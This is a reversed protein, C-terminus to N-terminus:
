SSTQPYKAEVTSALRSVAASWPTTCNDVKGCGRSDVTAPDNVLSNRCIMWLCMCLGTGHSAGPSAHYSCARVSARPRRNAIM